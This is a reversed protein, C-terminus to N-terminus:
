AVGFGARVLLGTQVDVNPAFFEGALRHGDQQFEDVLLLLQDKGGGPHALFPAGAVGPRDVRLDDGADLAAARLGQLLHVPDPVARKRRIRRTVMLRSVVDHIDVAEKDPASNFEPCVCGAIQMGAFDFGGNELMTSSTDPREKQQFVQQARAYRTPLAALAEKSLAGQLSIAYVPKGDLTVVPLKGTLATGNLTVAPVAKCGVLLTTAMAGGTQDDKRAYDIWLTNDKPHVTVKMLSIRGDANVMMGGPVSFSWLTPDPMPNLAAYTGSVPETQLYTMCGAETTLVAGNKELRGTTGQVTLNTEREIGTPLYPWQGNVRRYAFATPSPADSEYLTKAGMELLDDGSHYAIHLTDAAEEWRIDLKAEQMHRQFAAFDKYETVDGMELVFGGSARDIAAWDADKQLPTDRQLNYSNIVLVPKSPHEFKQEVGEELVVEDTRGLNTAPLPIIGLYSVGDHITIRQGAKAKYPLATVRQGDVFIEWTAAPQEYNYLAIASQLTKVDGRGEIKWPSTVSILKNKWQMTAVNGHLNRWGWDDNVWNTGNIGYRLDLTGIEQVNEVQRDQRRWQGMVNVIERCLDVSALGYNRGLYSRRWL